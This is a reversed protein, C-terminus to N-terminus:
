PSQLITLTVGAPRPVLDLSFIISLVPPIIFKCVLVATMDLNDQIYCLGYQSLVDKLIRNTEPATTRATMQRYRLKLITRKEDTTLTIPTPASGTFNYNNFNTLNTADFGWPQKGNTVPALILSIPIGLIIAWVVCGFDNCTRLDFIDTIWDNWFTTQNDDYWAQKAALIAQLNPATNYQWLLSQLLDVSFDFPQITPM